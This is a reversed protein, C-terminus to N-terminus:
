RDERRYFPGRVTVAQLTRGRQSISLPQDIGAMAIPVYGMGIAGGVTLAPGGSTVSGVPQGTDDVIEAGPRAIGRSQVRFGVLKRTLGAERAKLLAERGVFAGKDLKVTWGLGAEYPHTTDNIDNGYLMLKAELRLTDRAGLGIPTVNADILADWVPQAQAAPIFLEFGDEGTYGTRAAVVDIGAVKTPTLSFAPLETLNAAGLKALTSVADPGQVALLALESSRDIWQSRHETPTHELIHALDKDINAANIVIRIHDDGMRYVICDDVIGGHPHLLLSYQAQGVSLRGVDNSTLSQVIEIAHPGHIDAEGMHSVDFLGAKTRVAEHEAAIGSYQVPMDWGGFATMRAGLKLHAAHLPTQLLDPM